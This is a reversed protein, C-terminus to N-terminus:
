ILELEGVNVIKLGNTGAAHGMNNGKTIIVTDDSRLIGLNVCEKIAASNVERRELLTPDFFVPYVGRYLTMRRQTRQHRSLGYIPIGSSIRSMWLPTSGSETLAVIGQIPLHNALYMTAMAISEDIRHFETKVRARAQRQGPYRESAVCIEAMMSVVKPPHNGVATEASLMVADTGDLVANAVDSVEARTPIPSTVMSEMMQTATIVPRDLARALNILNKQVGPVEVQGIEIALDGRAVMVGDSERIIDDIVNLADAREIKAILRVRWSLFRLIIWM